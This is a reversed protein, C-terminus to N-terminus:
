NYAIPKYTITLTNLFQLPVLPLNLIVENYGHLYSKNITIGVTAGAALGCGWSCGGGRFVMELTNIPIMGVIAANIRIIMDGSILVRNCTAATHNKHVTNNANDSM